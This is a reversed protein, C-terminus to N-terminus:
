EQEELGDHYGVRYGEDFSDKQGKTKIIVLLEKLKNFSDESLEKNIQQIYESYPGFYTEDFVDALRYPYNQHKM